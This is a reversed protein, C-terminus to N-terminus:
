KGRFDPHILVDGSGRRGGHPHLTVAKEGGCAKHVHTHLMDRRWLHAGLGLDLVSVSAAHVGVEALGHAVTVRIYPFPAGRCSESEGRRHLSLTKQNCSYHRRGGKKSARWRLM